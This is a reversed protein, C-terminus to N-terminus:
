IAHLPGVDTWALNSLFIAFGALIMLTGFRSDPRRWRAVLGGLICPLTVWDMLAAQLGPENVHDSTLALLFSLVGATLGLVVIAPLLSPPPARAGTTEPVEAVAVTAM